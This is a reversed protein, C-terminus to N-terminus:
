SQELREIKIGARELLAVGKDTRYKTEFVVREISSQIILKACDFCPSCTVYLTSGKSSNTSCALKTIANSEAHLVEPKTYMEDLYDTYECNNDFGRPTGNYGEAIIQTDKVILCGVKGRQAHSLNALEKAMNMYTRDLKDREV